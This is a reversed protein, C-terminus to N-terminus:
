IDKLNWKGIIKRLKKRESVFHFNRKPICEEVLPTIHSLAKNKSIVFIELNSTRKCEHSLVAVEWTIKSCTSGGKPVRHFYKDFHKSNKRNTWGNYFNGYAKITYKNYGIQARSFVSDLEELCEPSNDMDVFFAYTNKQKSGSESITRKNLENDRRIPPPNIVHVREEIERVKEEEDEENSDNEKEAHKVYMTDGKWVKWIIEKGDSSLGVNLIQADLFLKKLHDQIASSVTEETGCHVPLEKIYKKTLSSVTFTEESNILENILSPNLAVNKKVKM